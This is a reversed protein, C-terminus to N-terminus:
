IRSQYTYLQHYRQQLAILEEHTGQEQIKGEEIVLIQAARRITSLRHAIVFTTRGKFLTELSAQILRETETDLNSTAEDLILIKPDAIIARAISVRQKQGGSLKVGREGILTDIGDPLKDSFEPIHAANLANSLQEDSADPNGFLINEKITGEFLFDDQLVVALKKRFDDLKVNALNKGDLYIEGRDPKLFSAVLSSITTKGSGSSGVLATVTGKGAKFSVDHIVPVNEHYEFFVNRFEIDGDIKDLSITRESETGELDLSLIDNMRDLGAFAETIQSGINSMQVIPFALLALYMIYIVFDGTTMDKRLVAFASFSMVVAYTFGTLLLTTMSVLATATLSKKVNLFLKGVGKKFVEDERKEAHFGKIVRIGGITETIRGTVQANIEGRLRFIPRIYGFTKLMIIGFIILIILSFLTMLANLKILIILAFAATLIGGILQVFGTGVLNRVGEPDVMIRSVLAGSKEKNFFDLPLRLIHKAIKRRLESILFHAEVSLIKTLFFNLVAQVSVAAVVAIIILKLMKMDGTKFVNDILFKSSGPLVLSAVRSIFILVLGLLLIKWRPLLVERAAIGLTQSTVKKKKDKKETQM